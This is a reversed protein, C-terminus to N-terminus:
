VAAASHGIYHLLSSQRRSPGAAAQVGDGTQGLGPKPGFLSDFDIALVDAEMVEVNRAMGFKLRLQAALVRDLEVAILRRTLRALLSTLIGRKGARNGAGHNRSTGLQM